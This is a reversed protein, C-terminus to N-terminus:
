LKNYGFGKLKGEIQTYEKGCLMGGAIFQEQSVDALCFDPKRFDDKEKEGKFEFDVLVLGDLDEQFVDFEAILDKYPVQGSGAQLSGTSGTSPYYYRIKYIRKGEVKSLSEFEDRTLIITQEKQITADGEKIPAKKTMEYRDGNKRLRLCPHKVDQPIYIDIIEKSECDQLDGPLYKALFTRELEIM